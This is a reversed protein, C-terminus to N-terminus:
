FRMLRAPTNSGQNMRVPIRGIRSPGILLSFLILPSVGGSAQDMAQCGNRSFDPQRCVATTADLLMDPSNKVPEFQSENREVCIPLVIAKGQRPCTQSAIDSLKSFQRSTSAM